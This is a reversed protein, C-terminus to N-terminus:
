KETGSSAQLLSIDDDADITLLDGRGTIDAIGYFPVLPQSCHHSSAILVDDEGDDWLLNLRSRVASQVVLWGIGLQSETNKLWDHVSQFVLFGIPVLTDPTM